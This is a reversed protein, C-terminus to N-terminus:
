VQCISSLSKYMESSAFSFESLARFLEPLQNKLSVLSKERVHLCQKAHTEKEEELRKKLSEVAISKETVAADQTREESREPDMDDPIRRQQYKYHWDDFHRQKRDLEKETEEWKLKLKREEDQQLMITNIVAGFTFIATRLHEDPLRELQDHWALLLKQIPPNQVRPPSSVKEKLSSEIPILNLKLWSNLSKIYDKQCRVLKEFQSHWERVVGCLQVTREYHHTSTEKPSQSLDMARLASVIKLQAEHHARMTNWMMAMGNVLQVLKPYLQEDRLRSIESVTSDLSQMDVIYRTHLHSVAAKAKELAEANSDRKKLRNLTAVKKQYEFKMLEGAKVEDYLKKEWALLKDLVTAHTEQEEAYFDDKGDDMNALGRFSRNWTIVRMVRASHDIHGRNDAFNSHYHLRTAELMKSVEHASESAKLFHDDIDIFIQLLNFNAKVMRKGEISGMSAAQKMKKSSKAVVAPEAVEPPAPPPEVREELVAEVKEAKGSIRREEIVDNEVGKSKKDFSKREIEEKNIQVEEVESLTSVPINDVSFFYDYTSNQQPPPPIHRNESPPPRVPPSAGTLDENLESNRIRSSGEDGKSKNRSRRLAGVSGENDIEEEEEMIPSGPKLDPNYVNMQPMTAARQLPTSFNSPPLPPPPPPFSEFPATVPAAASSTVGPNSQTSVSVFQPNQVEGHAYDSLAAGTNKLSMSYASHAAAFANRATVADKMHIKREKCRAIAEENEIKSQSCGM